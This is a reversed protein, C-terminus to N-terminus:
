RAAVLKLTIPPPTKENLIESKVNPANDIVVPKKDEAKVLIIELKNNNITKTSNDIEVKGTYGLVESYLKLAAIRDKAEITPIMVGSQSLIKEDALALLKAALQERDLPPKSLELTKLYIDRSAIVVADTLWNFSAWLAKSTDEGFVKCGAEFPNKAKALEIGFQKKLNEDTQYAQIVPAQQAAASGVTWPSIVDNWGGVPACASTDPKPDVEFHFNSAWSM